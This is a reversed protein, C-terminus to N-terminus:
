VLLGELRMIGFPRFPYRINTKVLRQQWVLPEHKAAVRKHDVFVRLHERPDRCLPEKRGAIRRQQHLAALLKHGVVKRVLLIQHHPLIAFSREKRSARM